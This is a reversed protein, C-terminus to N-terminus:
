PIVVRIARQEGGLVCAGLIADDEYDCPGDVLEASWDSCDASAGAQDWRDGRYERCEERRSFRNVYVSHGFVTDPIEPQETRNCAVTALGLLICVTPRIHSTPPAM